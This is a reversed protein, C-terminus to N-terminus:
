AILNIYGTLAATHALACRRGSSGIFRHVSSGIFRHVSSGIFRHVSSGIFRHVSSGIFRHVSSGIFRHYALSMRGALLLSIKNHFNATKLKLSFRAAMPSRGRQKPPAVWGLRPETGITTLHSPIVDSRSGGVAVEHAVVALSSRVLGDLGSVPVLRGTLADVSASKPGPTLNDPHYFRHASYGIGRRLSSAIFRHLSSAIIGQGREAQLYCASNIASIPPKNGLM